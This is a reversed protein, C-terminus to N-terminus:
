LGGGRFSATQPLGVVPEVELRPGQGTQTATANRVIRLGKGRETVLADGNPLFALSFPRSLGRAVVVVRIKHQEATDFTYPTDALAVPAIGIPPQQQQALVAAVSLVIAVLSPPVQKFMPPRVM